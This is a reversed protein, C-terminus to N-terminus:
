WQLYEELSERISEVSPSVGTWFYFDTAAQHAMFEVLEIWEVGCDSLGSRLPRALKESTNETLLFSAHAHWDLNSLQRIITTSPPKSMIVCQIRPAKQDTREVHQAEGTIDTPTPDITEIRQVPQLDSDWEVIRHRFEPSALGIVKALLPDGIVIISGTEKQSSDMRAEICRAIGNGTTNDGLWSGRDARAVNVKGMVLASETLTDLYPMVSSQFPDFLAVGDLGLAQIGRFAAEFRDDAVQCTFFRWDLGAARAARYMVFQTPNGAVPNGICCVNPQLVRAFSM